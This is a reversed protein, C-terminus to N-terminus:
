RGGVGEALCEEFVTEMKEAIEPWTSNEALRARGATGLQGAREPDALLAMIAEALEASDEPPVILGTKEHEVAVTLDGVATTVVPRSFSHALHVVGSANANRYPLAVVRASRMLPAVEPVPVYGLRLRVNGIREAQRTLAETDVEGSAAGAIVLRADPMRRRVETFADMLLDLGKYAQLTGFFLVVPGDDGPDPDESLFIDEDGHPIMEIRRVGPCYERLDRASYEGLVFVADMCRYARRLSRDLTGSTKFVEGDRRQENFPRPSHAVYVLACRRRLRAVSRAMREVLWGDLPFRWNSWQVVDPRTRRMHRHLAWWAALYRGARYVRRAKRVVPADEAGDAPHWTPLVPSVTMGSTRSTLEPDPGTVLDVRHGRRALAEGQQFAFQYLGGSPSFEVLM